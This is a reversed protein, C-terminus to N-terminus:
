RRGSFGSSRRARRRRSGGILKQISRYKEDFWMTQPGAREYTVGLISGTVPHRHLWGYFDYENDQVLIDGPTGTIADMFRLVRPTGPEGPVLAM